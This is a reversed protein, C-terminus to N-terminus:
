AIPPRYPASLFIPTVEDTVQAFLSGTGTPLSVPYSGPVQAQHSVGHCHCCHHCDFQAQPSSPPTAESAADQPEDHDHDFSLHEIGSQHQQHVDVVAGVSQALFLTALLVAIRRVIPRSFHM